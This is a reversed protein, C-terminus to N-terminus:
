ATSAEADGSPKLESCRFLLLHVTCRQYSRSNGVAIRGIRVRSSLKAKAVTNLKLPGTQVTFLLMGRAKRQRPSLSVLM